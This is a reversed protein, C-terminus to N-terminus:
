LDDPSFGKPLLADNTFTETGAKSHMYIPVDLPMLERMVQRCAGCPSVLHDQPTAIAMAQIAEKKVGVSIAHFLCTREACMSLGFSANEVNAGTMITGDDLLIAAGVPFKSYPVYAHEYAKIAADILPKM